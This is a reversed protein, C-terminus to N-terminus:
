INKIEESQFSTCFPSFFNHDKGQKIKGKKREEEEEEEETLSMTVIVLFSYNCYYAHEQNVNGLTNDSNNGGIKKNVRRSSTM